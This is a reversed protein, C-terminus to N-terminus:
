VYFVEGHQAPFLSRQQGHRQLVPGIALLRDGPDLPDRLRSQTYIRLAVRQRAHEAPEADRDDRRRLAEHGVLLGLLVTGATFNETEDPSPWLPSLCNLLIPRLGIGIGCPTSTLTDPLWMVTFPGFAVSSLSKWGSIATLMWSPTSVTLRGVSARVCRASCPRVRESMAFM